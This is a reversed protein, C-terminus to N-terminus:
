DDETEQAQKARFIALHHLLHNQQVPLNSMTFFEADRFDNFFERTEANVRLNL